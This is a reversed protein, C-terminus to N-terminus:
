GRNPLMSALDSSGFQLMNLSSWGAVQTTPRAGM